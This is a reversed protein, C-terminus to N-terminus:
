DHNRRRAAGYRMTVGSVGYAGLFLPVMAGMAVIRDSAGLLVLGVFIVLELALAGVNVLAVARRESM